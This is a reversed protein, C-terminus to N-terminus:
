VQVMRIKKDQKNQQYEEIAEDVVKILKQQMNEYGFRRLMSTRAREGAWLEKHDGFDKKRRYIEYIAQAAKEPAIHDSWIYPTTQSGILARADPELSFGFTEDTDPDYIQDQMGGTKTCIVPTGCMLSELVCLGFGEESSLSITADAFNYFECMDRNSYKKDAIAVKGDIGIDKIIAFLDQGQPDGPPTKMAFLCKEQEEKPLMDLFYKWAMLCTGTKKRIANRSNYFIVFWDKKFPDGLHGIKAKTTEDKSLITFDDPPVAHPVYSVKDEWGNDKLFKYTLKNICPLKDCSNYYHKNYKPWTLEDANDWITWYILPCFQKIEDSMAFLWTFYRPDTVIFLADPREFDLFQRLIDPNGYEEVPIIIVDDGYEQIKIPQKSPHQIAGGFNIVKYKGTKIFGEVAYKTQLGVGSSALIIDSIVLIKKKDSM